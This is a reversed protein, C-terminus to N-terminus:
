YYNEQTPPASCTTLNVQERPRESGGDRPRTSGGQERPRGSGVQGRIGAAEDQERLRASGGREGLRGSASSVAGHYGGGVGLRSTEVRRALGAFVRGM